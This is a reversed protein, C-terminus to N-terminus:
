SITLPVAMIENSHTSENGSIDVATVNFYHPTGPELNGISASTTPGVYVFTSSAGPSPSYYVRYGALDTLISHDENETPATWSLTVSGNGGGLAGPPAEIVEGCGAAMISVSFLMLM